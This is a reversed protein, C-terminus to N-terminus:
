LLFNSLYDGDMFLGHGHGICLLGRKKLVDGWRHSVLQPTLDSNSLANQNLHGGVHGVM